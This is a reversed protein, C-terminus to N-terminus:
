DEGLAKGKNMERLAAKVESRLISSGQVSEHNQNSRKPEAYLEKVYEAWREEIEKQSM